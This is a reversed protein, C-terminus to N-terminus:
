VVAFCGGDRSLITGLIHAVTLTLRILPGEVTSM